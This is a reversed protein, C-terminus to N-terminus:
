RSYLERYFNMYREAVLSQRFVQNVKIEPNIQNTHVLCWEIGRALDDTNLEDALYGNQLHDIMDANGGINFAVVPTGCAMSEMIVNSLNENLSPVLMVSAVRYANRLKEDERILGLYHVEMEVDLEELVQDTGMVLLVYDTKVSLPLKKLAYLLEAFGKRKDKIANMAGYLLYKKAPDLGLAACAEERNGPSFFAADIPNPIVSVPFKEFLGSHRAADALWHSPSVIHLDLKEYIKQKSHWVAYSLDTERGSHLHPCAGCSQQYRECEAFYHCVGTFPWSDHLTWVIPKRVRTLENLDLFRLNVWHLHLIDFDIKQFAGYISSSRLDSMFADEREPYAAWRHHQIKNKIKNEVFRYATTLGNPRDYDSVALIDPEKLSRNKVFMTSNGGYLNVANHIRYAARAAGGSTDSVNVSLIKPSTTM